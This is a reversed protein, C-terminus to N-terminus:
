RAPIDMEGLSGLYYGVMAKKSFNPMYGEQNVHIAPSIRLASTNNTFTTASSWLSGSTNKVKVAQNDAIPSRLM